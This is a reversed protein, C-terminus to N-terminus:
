GKGGKRKERKARRKMEKQECIVNRKERKSGVCKEIDHFEMYCCISLIVAGARKESKGGVFLGINIIPCLQTGHASYFGQAM